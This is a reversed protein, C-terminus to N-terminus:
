WREKQNKEKEGYQTLQVVVKHGSVAGFTHEKAIFIDQGFKQNDPVVFGFNQSAEFTGVLEKLGHSVIKVVKAEKRRGGASPVPQIQVEDMHVAGGRNEAAIYYDDENEVSVFGFGKANGTYVGFLVKGQSKSYKGKKSVEVRCEDVLADLVEQLEQRQSKPVQLVMAMEKAKMPVYLEECIFEYIMKKRDELLKRDM